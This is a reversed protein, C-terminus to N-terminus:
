HDEAGHERIHKSYVQRFEPNLLLLREGLFQAAKRLSMKRMEEYAIEILPNITDDDGIKSIQLKEKDSNFRVLFEDGFINM